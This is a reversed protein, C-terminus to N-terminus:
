RGRQDSFLVEQLNMAISLLELGQADAWTLLAPVRHAAERCVEKWEKTVMMTALDVVGEKPDDQGLLISHLKTGETGFLVLRETLLAQAVDRSSLFEDASAKLDKALCVLGERVAVDETMALAQGPPGGQNLLASRGRLALQERDDLWRRLLGITTRLRTLRDHVHVLKKQMMDISEFQLRRRRDDEAYKRRDRELRRNYLWNFLAGLSSGVLAGVGASVLPVWDFRIM